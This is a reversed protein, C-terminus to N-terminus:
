IPGSSKYFGMNNFAPGFGGSMRGGKGSSPTYPQYTQGPSMGGGKGGMGGGGMGGYGFAYPNRPMYPSQGGFMSQYYPQTQPIGGTGIGYPNGTRGMGYGGFGSPMAAPRNPDYGFGSGGYGEQGYDLPQSTQATPLAGAGVTTEGTVPDTKALMGGGFGSPVFGSGGYGSAGYDLNGGTQARPFYNPNMGGYAESRRYGLIDALGGGYGGYFRQYPNYSGGAMPGFFGADNSLYDRPDFNPPFATSSPEPMPGTPMIVRDGFNVMSDAVPDPEPVPAPRPQPKYSGYKAYYADADEKSKFRM